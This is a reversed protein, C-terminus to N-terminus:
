GMGSWKYYVVSSIPKDFLQYEEMLKPSALITNQSPGRPYLRVDSAKRVCGGEEVIEDAEDRQPFPISPDLPM